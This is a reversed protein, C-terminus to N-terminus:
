EGRKEEWTAIITDGEKEITPKVPSILRAYRYAEWARDYVGECGILYRYDFKDPLVAIAKGQIIPKDFNETFSVEIIDGVKIEDREGSFFEESINNIVISLYEDRVQGSLFKISSIRNDHMKDSGRLRIFSATMLPYNSIKVFGTDKSEPLGEQELVQMALANEFKVFKIKLKKM